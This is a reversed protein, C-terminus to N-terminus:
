SRRAESARAILAVPSVFYSDTVQLNQVRDDTVYAGAMVIDFRHAVLDSQLTAWEIPVLELRVHLSRALEYAYSIDFGVLDGHANFYTFPVIDCGYGVRIVGRGRIGELTAAGEIPQLTHPPTDKVIAGVGAVLAPDLTRQLM